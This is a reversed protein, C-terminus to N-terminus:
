AQPPGRARAAGAGRSDPTTQVPLRVDAVPAPRPLALAEPMAGASKMLALLGCVVCGGDHDDHGPADHDHEGPASDHHEHVVRAPGDPMAHTHLAPVLGAAVLALVVGACWLTWRRTPSAAHPLRLLM